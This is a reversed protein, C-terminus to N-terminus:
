IAGAPSPSFCLLSSGTPASLSCLPIQAQPSFGVGVELAVRVWMEAGVPRHEWWGSIWPLPLAEDPPLVSVSTRQLWSTSTATLKCSAVTFGQSNQLDTTPLKFNVKTPTGCWLLQGCILAKKRKKKKKFGSCWQRSDLEM